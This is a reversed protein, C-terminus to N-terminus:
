LNWIGSGLYIGVVLEWHGFHIPENPIETRSEQFKNPIQHKLNSTKQGM